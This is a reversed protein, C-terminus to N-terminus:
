CNVRTPQLKTWRAPKGHWAAKALKALEYSREEDTAASSSQELDALVDAPSRPFHSKLANLRQAAAFEEGPNLNPAPPKGNVMFILLEDTYAPVAQGNRVVPPFRWQEMAAIAQKRLVEPGTLPEISIVRGDKDVLVLAHVMGGVDGSAPEVRQFPTLQPVYAQAITTGQGPLPLLPTVTLVLAAVLRSRTAQM